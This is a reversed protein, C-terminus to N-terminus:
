IFADPRSQGSATRPGAESSSVSENRRWGTRRGSPRGAPLSSRGLESRSGGRRHGPSRLEVHAYPEERGSVVLDEDPLPPLPNSRSPLSTSPLRGRTAHGTVSRAPPLQWNGGAGDHQTPFSTQQPPDMYHTDAYTQYDDHEEYSPFATTSMTASLQHSRGHPLAEILTRGNGASSESSSSWTRELKENMDEDNLVQSDGHVLGLREEETSPRHDNHVSRRLIGRTPSVLSRAPSDGGSLIRNIVTNFSFQRRAVHPLPESGTSNERSSIQGPNVEDGWSISRPTDSRENGQQRQFTTQGAKVDAGHYSTDTGSSDHIRGMPVPNLHSDIQENSGHVPRWHAPHLVSSAHSRIGALFSHGDKNAAAHEDEMPFHSMGLPPFVGKASGPTPPKSMAPGEGIVTKRRRLGDWEIIENGAPTLSDERRDKFFRRAEEDEMNRRVTSIRRIIAATGRISDARPESEPEEQTAVERVQDLDGKFVAADPVDKASKSLQLLIVGSCIQLFGMVVTAIEVGTGKFGQFLVASTIITASTFLVYYTPTVLAANFINLAKQM